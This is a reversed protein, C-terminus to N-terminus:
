KETYKKRFTSVKGDELLSREDCKQCWPYENPAFRNSQTKRYAQGGLWICAAQWRNFGSCKGSSEGETFRMRRMEGNSVM